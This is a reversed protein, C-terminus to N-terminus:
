VAMRSTLLDALVPQLWEQVRSIRTQSDGTEILGIILHVLYLTLVLHPDAPNWPSLLDPAVDALEGFAAQPHKGRLVVDGQFRYHLIDFGAPIPGACGEWDWVSLQVGDWGMNWPAFDGHCWGFQIPQDGSRLAIRSVVDAMCPALASEPPLAVVRQTLDTWFASERLATTGTTGRGSIEVAARRVVELDAPRRASLPAQVLLTLEGWEEAALVSPPTFHQPPASAFSRLVAAEHRVLERTIDSVGVKAYGVTAGDLGLVRLVPKQLARMRGVVMSVSVDDLSLARAIVSQIDETGSRSVTLRPLLDLGGMNAVLRAIRTLSGHGRQRLEDLSALASARPKTPVLMSPNERTPILAWAQGYSRSPARRVAVESGPYMLSFIHEVYALGPRGARPGALERGLHGSM